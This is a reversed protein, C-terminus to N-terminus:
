LPSKMDEIKFALEKSQEQFEILYEWANDSLIVEDFDLTSFYQHGIKIMFDFKDKIKITPSKEGCPCSSENLIVYDNIWYRILLMGDRKLTTLVLIGEAKGNSPIVPEKREPDIVEPYVIDIALHNVHKYKCEGGLPAFIESMGWSDYVDIGLINELHKRRKNSLPETGMIAMRLSHGSLEQVNNEIIEMLASPYGMYVTVGLRKIIGM